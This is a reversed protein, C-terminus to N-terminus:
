CSGKTYLSCASDINLDNDKRRKCSLNNKDIVEVGVVYTLFCSSVNFYYGTESILNKQLTKRLM